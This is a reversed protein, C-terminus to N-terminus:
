GKQIKKETKSIDIDGFNTPFTKHSDNSTIDDKEYLKKNFPIDEFNISKSRFLKKNEKKLLKSTSLVEKVLKYNDFNISYFSFIFTFVSFLTSFLAGINALVDLISKKSRIYETYHNHNNIMRIFALGRIILLSDAEEIPRETYSQEYSGIDISTFENKKDLLKDILGALGKEEKYKIVEWYINLFTSRNFSFFFEKYFTYKDNNKELPIKDQHNIKYGSYSINLVYGANTDNIDKNFDWDCDLFCTYVVSFSM